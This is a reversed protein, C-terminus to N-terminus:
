RNAGAALTCCRRSMAIRRCRSAMRVAATDLDAPVAAAGSGTAGPPVRLRLRAADAEAPRPLRPVLAEPLLLLIPLLLMLLLELSDAGRETLRAPLDVLVLGRYRRDLTPVPVLLPALARLLADDAGDPLPAAGGVSLLLLRLSGAVPVCGRDDGFSLWPRVLPRDVPNLGLRVLTARRRGAQFRAPVDYLERSEARDLDATLLLLLLLTAERAGDRADETREDTAEDTPLARRRGREVM